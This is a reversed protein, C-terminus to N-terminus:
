ENPNIKETDNYKQNKNQLYVNNHNIRKKVLRCKM